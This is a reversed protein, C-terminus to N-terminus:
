VMGWSGKVGGWVEIVWKIEKERGTSVGEIRRGDGMGIVRVGWKWLGRRWGSLFIM